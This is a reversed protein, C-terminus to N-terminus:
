LRKRTQGYKLISLCREKSSTPMRLQVKGHSLHKWACQLMWEVLVLASLLNAGWRSTGLPPQWKLKKQQQRPIYRMRVAAEFSTEPNLIVSALQLVYPVVAPKRGPSHECRMQSTGMEFLDFSVSSSNGVSVSTVIFNRYEPGLGPTVVPLGGALRNCQNWLGKARSHFACFVICSGLVLGGECGVSM